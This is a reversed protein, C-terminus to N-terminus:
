ESAPVYVANASVLDVNPLETRLKVSRMGSKKEPKALFTLLYQHAMRLTADKLYPTFDPATGTFGIYYAEGGTEEALQSLYIQGWYNLWYSHGFHGPGPTYIASVVIGASQSDKIATALYPDEIDGVGYFLDIGSTIMLVERRSATEPWRKILDTLSFYSSANAGGIGLPQRLSKVALDHDTTLNQEVRAIGNQMYAVGIKTGAPQANIFEKISSLQTSLAPSSFDDILIFVELGARDGQAPTWDTVQDREKGEYVMVDERSVSPVDSGHRPEVTVIMHVPMGNGQPTQQSYLACTSFLILTACVAFGPRVRIRTM